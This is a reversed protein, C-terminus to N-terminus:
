KAFKFAAQHTTGDALTMSLQRCTGGWGKDTKWVYTYQGTAPDYQLGSSGATVTMEIADLPSATDCAIKVSTISAVVGLGQDGGLAFKVPVSSGAKVANVTPLNDVPSFFGSWSYIVQYTASAAGANGANDLAGACSVTIAGVPGGTLTLAAQTAVGSTADTTNCGATPVADLPYSAGDSVGTVEILPGTADRFITVTQSDAGGDSRASCSLELGTLATDSSITQDACGEDITAASEADSVTWTVDVDSTYWGNNGPTGSVTPTITPPTADVVEFNTLQVAGQLVHTGDFHSGSTIIGFAYGSHVEISATGSFNFGASPPDCCNVPGLNLLTQVVQGSPGDAFVKLGVRVQFFSHFGSYNWDFTAMGDDVATVAFTWANPSFGATGPLDYSFTASTTAGSSPTISTTGPGTATWHQPEYDGTFGSSLPAASVAPAISALMLALIIGFLRTRTM